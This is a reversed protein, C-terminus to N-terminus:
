GESPRTVTARGRFSRSRGQFCKHPRPWRFPKAPPTQLGQFTEPRGQFGTCPRPPDLHFAKSHMQVAKSLRPLGKSATPRDRHCVMHTSSMRAVHGTAPLLPSRDQSVCRFARPFMKSPAQFANSPIPLEKLTRVRTPPGPAGMSARALRPIRKPARPLDRLASPLGQVTEIAFSADVDAHGTVLLPHLAECLGDSLLPFVTNWCIRIPLQPRKQEVNAGSAPVADGGVALERLVFVPFAHRTPCTQCAPVRVLFSVRIPGFDPPPRAFNPRFRQQGFMPAM